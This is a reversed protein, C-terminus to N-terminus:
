GWLFFADYLLAFIEFELASLLKLYNLVFILNIIDKNNKVYGM